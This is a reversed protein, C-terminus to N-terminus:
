ALMRLVNRSRNRLGSYGEDTVKASERGHLAIGENGAKEATAADNVFFDDEGEADGGNGGLEVGFNGLQQFADEKREHEARQPGEQKAQHGIAPAAAGRQHDVDDGVGDEFKRGGESGRQFNKQDRASQEANGHAPFPTHARGQGKLSQGRFAASKKRAHQLFAVHNAVQQRRDYVAKAEAKDSPAPHEDDASQRSKEDDIDPGLDVFRRSPAAAPVRRSGLTMKALVDAGVEAREGEEHNQHEGEVGETVARLIEIRREQGPAQLEARRGDHEDGDDAVNSRQQAANQEAGPRLVDAAAAGDDDRSQEGDRGNGQPRVRM